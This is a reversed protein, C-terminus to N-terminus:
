KKLYQVLNIGLKAGLAILIVRLVAMEVPRASPKTLEVVVWNLYKKM